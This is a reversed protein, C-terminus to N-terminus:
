SQQEQVPVFQVVEVRLARRLAGKRQKKPLKGIVRERVLRLAEQTHEIYHGVPAGQEMAEQCAETLKDLLAPGVVGSKEAFRALVALLPIEVTPTYPQAPQQDISGEVDVVIRAKFTHVGEPVDVTKNNENMEAAVAKIIQQPTLM